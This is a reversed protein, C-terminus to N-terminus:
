HVEPAIAERDIFSDAIMALQRDTKKEVELNEHLVSALEVMGLHKLYTCVAGYGAIKYHIQHQLNIIIMADLIELDDSRRMLEDFQKNMAAIPESVEGRKREFLQEFVQRLRMLQDEQQSQYKTITSVLRPHSAFVTIHELSENILREAHYLDRLQELM